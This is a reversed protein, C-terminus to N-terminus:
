AWRARQAVARARQYASEVQIVARVLKADVDQEAAVQDIIEGYPRRGGRQLPAAVAPRRSPSPIRCKTPRSGRRRDVARLRDRRRGAADLVLSDGDM